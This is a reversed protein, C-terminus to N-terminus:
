ASLESNAATLLAFDAQSQDAYALSWDVVADDFAGSSGLYGAVMAANESQSHARALLAGCAVAYTVFPEITLKSVDISGKMDRFQRVYFDKEDFRLHGLFLDSVAQLIRQNSVVRLAQPADATELGLFRPNVAEGGYSQLVSVQAEKIQLVLSEGQPGTLIMIYCRTGVSGVGVIRRAIDTITFQSLLQAIDAPVTRRCKEFLKIISEEDPYPVHALMPPNEKLLLRGDPGRESIKEIFAESTRLRAQSTAKKLVKRSASDLNKNEGEIDVRFYFRELVSLKMMDRLGERYGAAAATAARRIEAASFNSERAGIIVSAVLRKVDWEWPGVAAEDFDNLDFVMTRQPSAFLGFNSIHADGCSVVRVGTIPGGALDAAMIAAAGRYFTFPSVLMRQMRLPVLEQVRTANQENLIGLPDRQASPVYSAHSRRPVQTRLAKGAALLDSQSARGERQDLNWGAIRM